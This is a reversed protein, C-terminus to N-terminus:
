VYCLFQYVEKLNELTQTISPWKKKSFDLARSISSLIVTNSHLLGSTSLTQNSIGLTRCIPIGSFYYYTSISQTPPGAPFINPELDPRVSPPCGARGLETLLCKIMHGSNAVTKICTIRDHVSVRCDTERAIQFALHFGHIQLSVRSTCKVGRFAHLRRRGQSSLRRFMFAFSIQTNQEFNCLFM